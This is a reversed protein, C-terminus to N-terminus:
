LSMWRVEYYSVCAEEDVVAVLVNKKSSHAVRNKAAFEQWSFGNHESVPFLIWKSHNKGSSMGKDYVRFEAGFKLATKVVYGKKRLDKYVIFKNLFNKDLRQFKKELEELSIEKQRHDWVEMKGEEVLFLSEPLSYLIKGNFREGFNKSAYLNQAEVSNSAVKEAILAANIKAM